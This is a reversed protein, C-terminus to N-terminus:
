QCWFKLSRWWLKLSYWLLKLLHWQCPAADLQGGTQVAAALPAHMEPSSM